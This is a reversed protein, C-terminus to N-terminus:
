RWLADEHSTIAGRGLGAVAQERELVDLRHGPGSSQGPTGQAGGEPETGESGTAVGCFTGAFRDDLGVGLGLVSAVVFLEIHDEGPPGGELEVLVGEVRRRAREHEDGVGAHVAAGDGGLGPVATSARPPGGVKWGAPESHSM